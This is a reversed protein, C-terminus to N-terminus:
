PNQMKKAVGRSGHRFCVNNHRRVDRKHLVLHTNTSASKSHQLPGPQHKGRRHQVNVVALEVSAVHPCDECLLVISFVATFHFLNDLAALFRHALMHDARVEHPCAATCKRACNPPREAPVVVLSPEKGDGKEEVEAGKRAAHNPINAGGAICLKCAIAEESTERCLDVHRGCFCSVPRHKHPCCGSSVRPCRTYM